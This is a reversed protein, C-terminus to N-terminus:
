EYHVWRKQLKFQVITLALVIALLLFAIAAAFGRDNDIFGAQYFLYVITRTAPLAPSGSGIMLYILDFVQLSGIVSIVSVFFISPTLLPVSISRFVRAPSAGDLAAAERLDVPISQLGALFIVVNIGLSGWIGVLAVAYLATSSNTLWSTGDIGVVHLIQNLIGYDGNYLTRWVIAIAAPMTVVPLFYLVRYFSKGALGTANLLGAVIVGLPIGVMGIVTFIATNILAGGLDPDSFLRQYNAIGVWTSGGFPGSHTFSLYLTRVTPWLYFIALGIGSPGLFLLAWWSSRGLTGRRRPRETRRPPADADAAGSLATRASSTTSVQTM